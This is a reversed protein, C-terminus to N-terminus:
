NCNNNISQEYWNIMAQADRRGRRRPRPPARRSRRFRRMNAAGSEAEEPVGTTWRFRLDTPVGAATVRVVFGTRDRAALAGKAYLVVWCGPHPQGPEVGYLKAAEKYDLFRLDDKDGNIAKFGLAAQETTNARRIFAKAANIHHPNNKNSAVFSGSLGVVVAVNVGARLYETSNTVAQRSDSFSYTLYYKMKGAKTGEVALRRDALRLKTYDYFVFKPFLAPVAGNEPLEWEIDTSGNLRFVPTYGEGAAKGTAAGIEQTLKHLFSDRFLLYWLTRRMRRAMQQLGTLQGSSFGLCAKRCGKSAFRCVNYGAETSPSMYMVSTAYSRAQGKKVKESTGLFGIIQDSSPNASVKGPRRGKPWNKPIQSRDLRLPFPIKAQAVAHTVTHWLDAVPMGPRIGAYKFRQTYIWDIYRDVATNLRAERERSLRTQWGGRFKEGPRAPFEGRGLKAEGRWKPNFSQWAERAALFRKWERRADITETKTIKASVQAWIDRNFGAPVERPMLVTREEMGTVSRLLLSRNAAHDAEPDVEIARRGMLRDAHVTPQPEMRSRALRGLRRERAAHARFPDAHLGGHQVARTGAYGALAALGFKAFNNM